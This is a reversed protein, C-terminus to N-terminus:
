DLFINRYIIELGVVEESTLTAFEERRARLSLIGNNQRLFKILLDIVHNPMDFRQNIEEKIRDYKELFTVEEPLIEVITKYVCDYLYEAQKTADFYRYFDLTENLVEVNNDVTPRWDILSLRNKSYAELTKKYETISNLMVASVPFILGDPSFKHENLVHHVLYRHIRGNGDQFPHIFVFGFAIIAAAIIPDIESKRLRENADILGRILTAIDQWRASIHDPIPAGTSRDHDGVFGGEYRFGMKVFRTDEIVINQLREFESFSLNTQGAKYIAKGWREIRNNGPKEGEIAFSAKSDKLLLFSAARGLVDPHIAGAKNQALIKLNKAIYEELKPTKRILPCFNKVGPLNNKVKHRKSLITSGTYYDKPDLAWVYGKAVSDAIPLIKETLWEYFFWIIRSYHSIPKAQVLDIIQQEDIKQFLANLIALDVGEYKLSFELHGIASDEPTYQATYANWEEKSYNRSKSTIISLREPLPIKLDYKAILASYGVLIAPEPTLRDLFVNILKPSHNTM